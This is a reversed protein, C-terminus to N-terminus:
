LGADSPVLSGADVPDVDAITAGTAAAEASLADDPATAAEGV